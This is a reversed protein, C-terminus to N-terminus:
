SYLARSFIPRYKQTLEHDEGIFKFVSICAKRAGDDHYSRDKQILEIFKSLASGFDQKRLANIAEIYLEKGLGDPLSSPDEGLSFLEAFIRISEAKDFFNSGDEVSSILGLAENPNDYFLTQALTVKADENDAEKSVIQKLIKQAQQINNESILQKAQKLQHRFPSPIAKQLWQELTREPLAGSFEDIIQGDVFLKVNPIGHIQFQAALQQHKETNIKVLEWRGKHKAALKELIPGLIKCPGCWEAWFDVLIPIQYSKEIVDDRFNKLEYSM